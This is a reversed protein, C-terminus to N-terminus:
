YRDFNTGTSLGFALEENRQNEITVNSLQYLVEKYRAELITYRDCERQLDERIHKNAEILKKITREQEKFEFERDAGFGSADETRAVSKKTDRKAQLNLLKVNEKELDDIQARQKEIVRKLSEVLIEM